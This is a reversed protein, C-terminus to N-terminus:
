YTVGVELKVLYQLRYGPLDILKFPRGYIYGQGEYIYGRDRM